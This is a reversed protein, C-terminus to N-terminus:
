SALAASKYDAPRPNSDRQQSLNDPRNKYFHLLVVRKSHPTRKLRVSIIPYRFNPYATVLPHAPTPSGPWVTFRTDRVSYTRTRDGGCSCDGRFSVPTCPTRTYSLQYLMLRGLQPDRTRIEDGAGATLHFGAASNSVSTASGHHMHWHLEPTSRKWPLSPTLPEIGKMPESVPM